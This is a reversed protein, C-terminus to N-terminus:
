IGFSTQTTNIATTTLGVEKTHPQNQLTPYPRLVEVAILHAVNRRWLMGKNDSLCGLVLLHFLFEELGANVQFEVSDAENIRQM